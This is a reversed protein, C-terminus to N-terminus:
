AYIYVSSITNSFFMTSVKAVRICKSVQGLPISLWMFIKFFTVFQRRLGVQNLQDLTLQATEIPTGDAFMAETGTTAIYATTGDELQVAQFGDLDPLIYIM